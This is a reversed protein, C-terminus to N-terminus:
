REPPVLGGELRRRYQAVASGDCLSEGGQGPHLGARRLLPYMSRSIASTSMAIRHPRQRRWRSTRSTPPRAMDRCRRCTATSSAAPVSPSRVGTERRRRGRVPLRVYRRRAVSLLRCSITLGTARSRQCLGLVRPPEGSRAQHRTSGRTEQKLLHASTEVSHRRLSLLSNSGLYGDERPTRMLGKTVNDLHGAMTASDGTEEGFNPSGSTCSGRRRGARRASGGGRHRLVQNTAEGGTNM